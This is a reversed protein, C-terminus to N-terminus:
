VTIAINQVVQETLSNTKSLWINDLEEVTPVKVKNIEALVQEAPSKRFGAVYRIQPSTMGWNNRHWDADCALLARLTAHVREFKAAFQASAVWAIFTPAGLRAIAGGTILIRTAFAAQIRDFHPSWVFVGDIEGSAWKADMDLPQVKVVNVDKIM